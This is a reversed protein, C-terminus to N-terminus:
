IVSSVLGLVVPRKGVFTDQLAVSPFLINAFGQSHTISFIRQGKNCLGLLFYHVSDGEPRPDCEVYCNQRRQARWKQYLKDLYDPLLRKCFIVIYETEFLSEFETLDLVIRPALKLVNM